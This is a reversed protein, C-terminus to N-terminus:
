HLDFISDFTNSMLGRDHRSNVRNLSELDIWPRNRVKGDSDLIFVKGAKEVIWIRGSGPEFAINTLSNFKHDTFREDM